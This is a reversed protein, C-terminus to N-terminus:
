AAVHEPALNAALDRTPADIATPALERILALQSIVSDATEQLTVGAAVNQLAGATTPDWPLDLAAYVPILVDRLLQPM